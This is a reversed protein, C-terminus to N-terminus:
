VFLGLDGGNQILSIGYFLTFVQLGFSFLKGTFSLFRLYKGVQINSATQNNVITNAYAIERKEKQNQVIEMKSMIMKILHKNAETRLGHRIKRVEIARTNFYNM